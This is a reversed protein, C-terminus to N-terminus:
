AICTFIYQADAASTTFNLTFGDSDMSSLRAKQRTTGAGSIVSIVRNTEYTVSANYVVLCSGDSGPIASGDSFGGGNSDAAYFGKVLLLSPKFGVGTVSWNGTGATGLRTVVGSTWTKGSSIGRIAQAELQEQNFGYSYDATSTSPLESTSQSDVKVSETDKEDKVEVYREDTAM